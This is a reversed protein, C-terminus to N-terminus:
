RFITSSGFVPWAECRSLGFAIKEKALELSRWLPPRLNPDFSIMAGSEKAVSLAKKTAEEVGPDTM